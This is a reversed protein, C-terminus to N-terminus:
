GSTRFGDTIQTFLSLMANSEQDLPVTVSVVWLDSDDSAPVFKFYTSRSTDSTRYLYIKCAGTKPTCVLNHGPQNPQLANTYLSTMGPPFDPFREVTLEATGDPKVWRVTTSAPLGDHGKTQEVFKTWGVPVPVTFGGGSGGAAAASTTVTTLQPVEATQAAPPPTTTSSRTPLLPQRALTRTAAFAGGAAAAFLVVAVVGLIAMVAPHRGRRRVPAPAPM